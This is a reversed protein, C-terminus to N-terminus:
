KKATLTVAAFGSGTPTATLTTTGGNVGHHLTVQGSTNTASAITAPAGATISFTGDTNTFNITITSTPASPNAYPDQTQMNFTMNNNNSVAIPQPDCTTNNTPISCSVFAIASAAAPSITISLGAGNTITGDTIVITATEAKYLTMAGNNAGSASAVGNTFTLTENAGFNVAAGTKNTVTPTFSGAATAGAFKITTKDGTYSTATNGFSDKATVTLNDAVGATTTTFAASLSLSAATAPSVTVALGTGNTRTGDTVTINATEAKPLKMVGNSSANVTAVGNTFTIVAASGFSTATGTKNTITPNNAGIPNAGGFTLSKDGTYTTDTSGLANKATITLNDAVGATPSTTAAALVLTPVAGGTVTIPSSTGAKGTDSATVTQNGNTKLTVANTYAHAGNDAGTGTTYTYGSPLVASGDTSSFVPTGSYGTITRNGSDAATVTVTVAVNATAAGPATVGFHDLAGTAVTSVTAPTNSVWATGVRATISWSYSTGPTLSADTCTTGSVTGACSSTVTGGGATRAVTYTIAAGIPTAPAAWKLTATSNIATVTVTQPTAVTDATYTGPSAASSLSWFAWAPAAAALTVVATIAAAILGRTRM